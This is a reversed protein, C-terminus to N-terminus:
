VLLRVRDSEADHHMSDTRMENSRLDPREYEIFEERSYFVSQSPFCGDWCNLWPNGRDFPNHILGMSNKFYVYKHLGIQENTTMNQMILTCHYNLLGCLAFAWLASYVMFAVFLWSVTVRCSYWYATIEWLIACAIHVALLGVFYRYNDRGVTNGVFPCFHDFKHICRGLIKCHKSRIPRRV